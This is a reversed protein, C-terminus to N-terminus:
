ISTASIATLASREGTVAINRVQFFYNAGVALPGFKTNYATLLDATSGGTFDYTGILRYASKSPKTRGTSLGATAYVLGVGAGVMNYHLKLSPTTGNVDVSTLEVAEAGILVPPVTVLTQATLFLNSNLAIYARKGSRTTINGIRNRSPLSFSNWLAITEAGLTRFMSSLSQFIGRVLSTYTNRVVAPKRFRKVVGNKNWVISGSKGSRIQGEPLLVLLGIIHTFLNTKKTRIPKCVNESDGIKVDSTPVPKKAYNKM